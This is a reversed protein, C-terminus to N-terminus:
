RPLDFGMWEWLSRDYLFCVVGVLLTRCGVWGSTMGDAWGVDNQCLWFRQIEGDGHGENKDKQKDDRLSGSRYKNKGRLYVRVESRPWSVLSFEPKLGRSVSGELVGCIFLAVSDRGGWKIM